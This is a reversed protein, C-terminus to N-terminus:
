SPPAAAAVEDRVMRAGEVLSQLKGFAAERSLYKM